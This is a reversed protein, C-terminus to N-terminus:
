QCTAAACSSLADLRVQLTTATADHVGPETVLLNDLQYPDAIVDYLEYEHVTGGYWEVYLYQTTRVARYTPVQMAGGAAIIAQVDALTDFMKFQNFTGNYQLLFDSRWPPTGGDLLPVMSRGDLDSPDLGALDLLTPALDAHTVLADSTGISVGPGSVIFPVRSSEEYPAQKAALRHSGLNYGNDSLFVFVTDALEGNTDLRTVLDAVMEDVALLAGMRQRHDFTFFMELAPSIPGLGDRLWTPKDSVDVEDYNPRTPLPDSVWAHAAHRPAPPLPLHPASPALFLLFPQDDNAETADLYELSADRLVDTQYDAATSGFAELVGNHAVEYDYGNLYDYGGRFAFWENWGPPTIAPNAYFALYKGIMATNYGAAQLRTALTDSEAGSTVFTPWGGDPPTTDFVGTNHPYRGTLLTARAPCCLPDTAFGNSFTM